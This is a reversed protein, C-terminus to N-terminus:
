LKCSMLAETDGIFWDQDERYLKQCMKILGPFAVRLELIAGPDIDWMDLIRLRKCFMIRGTQPRELFQKRHVCFPIPKKRPM